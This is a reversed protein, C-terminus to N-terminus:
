SIDGKLKLAHPDEDLKGKLPALVRLILLNIVALVLGIDYYGFGVAAGVVGINWISAATSVGHAAAGQKLIAGGGIFGIGVILGQLIRSLSQSGEGLVEIALIVLGCSAVAVLPFTRIGASRAEKERDWGIPLALAFAVALHVIHTSVDGWVGFASHKMGRVPAAATETATTTGVGTTAVVSRAALAAVTSAAGSCSRCAWPRSAAWRWGVGAQRRELRAGSHGHIEIAKLCERDRM